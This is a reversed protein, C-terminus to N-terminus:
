MFDVQELCQDLRCLFTVPAASILLGDSFTMASWMRAQENRIASPTIGDLSPRPKHQAANDAAGNAVPELQALFTQEEM